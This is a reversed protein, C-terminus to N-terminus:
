KNKIQELLELLRSSSDAELKFVLEPIFRLQLRSGLEKKIFGAARSLSKLSEKGEVGMSPSIFIKANKLDDTLVVSTVTVLGIRPDKVKKSIIDAIEARIQDGVREARKYTNGKNM